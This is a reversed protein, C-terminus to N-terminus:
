DPWGTARAIFPDLDAYLRQADRAVNESRERDLQWVANVVAYVFALAAVMSQYFATSETPVDIVQSAVQALPSSRSDTLVVVRTGRSRAFQAIRLHSARDRWFGIVILLDNPALNAAEHALYSGGRAELRIDHGLFRCQHALIHGVAAYSGTSAILTRRASVISRALEEVDEVDLGDVLEEVNALDRRLQAGVLDPDVDGTARHRAQELPELTKLYSSRLDRKLAGFGSYGLEKATRIVTSVSVGVREAIQDITEGAGVAPNARLFDVVKRQKRSLRREREELVTPLGPQAPQDM